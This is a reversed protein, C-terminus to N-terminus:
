DVCNSRAKSLSVQGSSRSADVAFIHHIVINKTCCKILEAIQRDSRGDELRPGPVAVGGAGAWGGRGGLKMGEIRIM